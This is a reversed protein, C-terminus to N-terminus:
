RTGHLKKPRKSTRSGKFSTDPTAGRKGAVSSESDDGKPASASNANSQSLPHSELDQSLSTEEPLSSVDFDLESPLESPLQDIASRIRELPAPMWKDYVNKTFRYATWKEKGDLETFDFTRIPHRYYKTNKRYIVPYYGYIRVSRHDHSISFALIQRHLEKGRNVLRFLEVVARVVLTMSHANQHDVLDLAADGCEVECALFPFYMSYTAMFYSLDGSLWDGIFPSLKHLQDDTFAERRFGVSYDPQPRTGTLPISNNWGENVSETIHKLNKARLGLTEASPVILRSIDQLVRAENQRQLNQCADKFVDDDFISENPFTQEGDLLDHCLRHGESMEARPKQDSPTVASSATIGSGSRKRRLSPSSRKRALVQEMTSPEFYEPPWHGERTWFEVGVLDDVDGSVPQQRFIDKAAPQPVSTRQRKRPSGDLGHESYEVMHSRKRDRRRLPPPSDQSLSILMADRTPHFQCVGPDINAQSPHPHIKPVPRGRHTVKGPTSRHSKEVGHPRMGQDKPAPAQRKRQADLQARTQSM